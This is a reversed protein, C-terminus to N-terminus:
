QLEEKNIPKRTVKVWVPFVSGEPMDPFYDKLCWNDIYMSGQKITAITSDKGRHVDLPEYQTILRSRGLFGYVYWKRYGFKRKRSIHLDIEIGQRPDPKDGDRYAHDAEDRQLDKLLGKSFIGDVSSFRRRDRARNPYGSTLFQTGKTSACIRKTFILEDQM